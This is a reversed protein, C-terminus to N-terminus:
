QQGRKQDLMARTAEFHRNIASLDTANLKTKESVLTQNEDNLFWDALKQGTDVKGAVAEIWAMIKDHAPRSQDLNVAAPQPHQAQHGPRTQQKQPQPQPDGGGKPRETGNGDVDEDSVIGLAAALAYRRGYTLASGYGQPDQKVVPMALAGSIYQGSSHTIITEVVIGAEAIDTFQMVALGHKPLIPRIMEIITDLPAFKSKFHPNTANKVVTSFEAQAGSIAAFLDSRGESINM